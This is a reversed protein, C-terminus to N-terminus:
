YTKNVLSKLYDSTIENGTISALGEYDKLNAALEKMARVAIKLFSPGLSVRGVGLENLRKLE